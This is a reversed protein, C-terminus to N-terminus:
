LHRALRFAIASLCAGRRPARRRHERGYRSLIAAMIFGMARWIWSVPILTSWSAAAEPNSGFSTLAMTLPLKVGLGECRWRRDAASPTEVPSIEQPCETGTWCRRPLPGCHPREVQGAAKQCNRHCKSGNIEGVRPIAVHWLASSSGMGDHVWANEQHGSACSLPQALGLIPPSM